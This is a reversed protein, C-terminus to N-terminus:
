KVILLLGKPLLSLTQGNFVMERKADTVGNVTFSWGAINSATMSNAITIQFSAAGKAPVDGVFDVTGEDAFEFGDITGAGSASVKLARIKGVNKYETKLTAGPAVSVSRANALSSVAPNANFAYGTHPATADFASNDSYWSLENPLTTDALVHDDLTMWSLGDRSGQFMWSVPHRATAQNQRCFDYSAAVPQDAGPRLVLRVYHMPRTEDTQRMNIYACGGSDAKGDCLKLMTNASNYETVGQRSYNGYDMMGPELNLYRRGNDAVANGGAWEPVNQLGKNIQNGDADFIGLEGFQIISDHLQTQRVTLRFWTFANTPAEVLLTGANVALDGSFTQNGRLAWIGPGDKAVNMVGAGDAVEAVVNTLGNEVGDLTLTKEGDTRASFDALAMYGTTSSNKLRANGLLVTKRESAVAHLSGVHELTGETAAEGLENTMGFSLAWNVRKSDDFIGFYDGFLNASTGISCYGGSEVITEAQLTGEEIAISGSFGNGYYNYAATKDTLRWVGTGRKYLTYNYNTTCLNNDDYPTTVPTDIVCPVSNSGTLLLRQLYKNYQRWTGTFVAGGHPGGDLGFPRNYAWGTFNAHLQWTIDKDTTEDTGLYKLIVSDWTYGLGNSTGISSSTDGKSGFKMIGVVNEEPQSGSSMPNFTPFTNAEGVIDVPGYPEFRIKGGMPGAIISPSAATATDTDTRTSFSQALSANENTIMGYAYIRRFISQSKDSDANVIVLTTGPDTYTPGYVFQTHPRTKGVYTPLRLLGTKLHIPVDYDFSSNFPAALTLEGAGTKVLGGSETGYRSVRVALEANTSVNWVVNNTGTCLIQFYTGLNAVDDDDLVLDYATSGLYLQDNATPLGNVRENGSYYWWNAADEFPHERDGEGTWHVQRNYTTAGFGAAACCVFSLVLASAINTKM